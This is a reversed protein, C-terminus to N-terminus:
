CTQMGDRVVCWAVLEITLSGRNLDRVTDVSEAHGRLCPLVTEEEGGGMRACGKRLDLFLQM